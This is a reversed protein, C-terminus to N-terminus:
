SQDADIQCTASSSELTPNYWQGLPPGHSAKSGGTYLRRLASAAPVEVIGSEIHKPHVPLIEPSQRVGPTDTEVDLYNTWRTV